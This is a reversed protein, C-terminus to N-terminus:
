KQSLYSSIHHLHTLPLDWLYHSIEEPSLSPDIELKNELWLKSLNTSLSISSFNNALECLEKEELLFSSKSANNKDLSGNYLIVGSSTESKILSGGDESNKSERLPSSVNKSSDSKKVSSYQSPYILRM